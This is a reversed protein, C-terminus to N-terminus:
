TILGKPIQKSKLIGYAQRGPFKLGLTHAPAWPPFVSSESTCNESKAPLTLSLVSAVTQVFFPCCGGLQHSRSGRGQRPLLALDPRHIPPHLVAETRGKRGKKM